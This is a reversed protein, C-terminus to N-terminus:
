NDRIPLRGRAKWRVISSTRVNGRLEGFPPEFFRIQRKYVSERINGYYIFGAVEFKDQLQPKSLRM